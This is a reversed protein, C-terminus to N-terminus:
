MPVHVYKGNRNPKAMHRMLNFGGLWISYRSLILNHSRSTIDTLLFAAHEVPELSIGLSELNVCKQLSTPKIDIDAVFYRCQVNIQFYNRYSYNRVLKGHVNQLQVPKGHVNGHSRIKEPVLKFERWSIVTKDLTKGTAWRRRGHKRNLHVCCRM